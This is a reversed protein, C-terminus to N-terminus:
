IGSQDRGKGSPPVLYGYGNPDAPSERRWDEKTLAIRRDHLEVRMWALLAIAIMGSGIALNPCDSLAFAACGIAALFSITGYAASTLTKYTSLKM